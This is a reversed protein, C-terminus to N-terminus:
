VSTEAFVRLAALDALATAVKTGNDYTSDLIVQNKDVITDRVLVLVKTDTTAAIATDVPQGLLDGVFLAAIVKSGDVATEVAIKYKGSATVKGLAQGLKYTKAAAENVTVVEFHMEPSQLGYKKILDSLRAMQTAVVAM